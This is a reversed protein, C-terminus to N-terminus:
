AARVTKGRNAIAEDVLTQTLSRLQGQRSQPAHNGVSFAGSKLWYESAETIPIERMRPELPKFAERIESESFPTRGEDALKLEYYVGALVRLMTGSALMTKKRLEIPTTEGNVIERLDSFSDVLTNLFQTVRRAALVENRTLEDEVRKGVRGTVGVHVARVLDAVNKAGILNPNAASMSTAQGDEVGGEVFLPHETALCFLSHSRGFSFGQAKPEQSLCANTPGRHSPSL